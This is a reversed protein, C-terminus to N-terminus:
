SYHEKCGQGSVLNDAAATMKEEILLERASVSLLCKRLNKEEALRLLFYHIVTIANSKCRTVGLVPCLM